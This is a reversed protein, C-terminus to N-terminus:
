EAVILEYGIKFRGVHPALKAVLPRAKELSDVDLAVIIRDKALKTKM